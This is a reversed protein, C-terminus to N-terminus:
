GNSAQIGSIKLNHMLKAGTWIGGYLHKKFSILVEILISHPFCIVMVHSPPGRGFLQLGESCLSSNGSTNYFSNELNCCLFEAQIGAQWGAKCIESQGTECDCLCFDREAEKEGHTHTYTYEVPEVCYRLVIHLFTHIIERVLKFFYPTYPLLSLELMVWHGEFDKQLCLWQLFHM